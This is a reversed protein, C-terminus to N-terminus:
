GRTVGEAELEARVAAIAAYDAADPEPIVHGDLMYPANEAATWREQNLWTSPQPIWEGGDKAWQMSQKFFDVADVIADAKAELGDKRWIKLCEKRNVKRVNSPWAKWFRSFGPLDTNPSDSVDAGKPTPPNTNVASAFASASAPTPNRNDDGKPTHKDGGKVGGKLTPNGGLKGAERCQDVKRADRVMRRSYITGDPERSATGTEVLESLLREVEAESAGVMRAIRETPVPKGGASLYGRRDGGFMLALVDVWLGRAALSCMRLAPDGLWDKAYFQFAPAKQDSM